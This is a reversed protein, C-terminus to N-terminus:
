RLTSCKLESRLVTYLDTLRMLEDAIVTLYAGVLEEERQVFRNDQCPKNAPAALAIQELEQELSM